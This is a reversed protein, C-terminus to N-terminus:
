TPGRTGREGQPSYRGFLNLNPLLASRPLALIVVSPSPPYRRQRVDRFPISHLIRLRPRAETTYLSRPETQHCLHEM